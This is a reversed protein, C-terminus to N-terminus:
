AAAGAGVILNAAILLVFGVRHVRFGIRRARMIDGTRFGVMYQRLRLATVPLMLLVFWWPAVRTASAAAGLLFEAASLSGVFAANGKSSVLAAVTPRGVARDGPIDNTNSYVGFMLPGFGFLVGEVLLLGSFRGGTLGYTAMVM